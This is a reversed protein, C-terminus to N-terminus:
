DEPISSLVRQYTTLPSVPTANELRDDDTIPGINSVKVYPVLGYRRCTGFWGYEVCGTKHSLEFCSLGLINFFWESVIKAKPTGAELLCQYFRYLFLIFYFHISMVNSKCGGGGGGDWPTPTNGGGGLEGMGFHAIGLAYCKCENPANVSM